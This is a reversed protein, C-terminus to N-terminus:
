RQQLCPDKFPSTKIIGETERIKSSLNADTPKLKKQLKLLLSNAEDGPMFGIIQIWELKLTPDTEKDFGKEIIAWRDAPCLMHIVEILSRKSDFDKTSQLLSNFNEQLWSDRKVALNRIAVPATMQWQHNTLSKRMMLIVKENQPALTMLAMAALYNLNTNKEQNSFSLLQQLVADKEGATPSANYLASFADVRETDGIGSVGLFERIMPIREASPNVGLGRALHSRVLTDSDKMLKRLAETAQPDNQSALNFAVAARVHSSKSNALEIITGLTNKSEGGSLRMIAGYLSGQNAKEGQALVDLDNIKQIKQQTEITNKRVVFGLRDRFVFVALIITIVLLTFILTKRNM